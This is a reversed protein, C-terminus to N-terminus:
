CGTRGRHFKIHCFQKINGGKPGQEQLVISVEESRWNEYV